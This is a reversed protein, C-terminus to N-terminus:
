RYWLQVQHSFPSFLTRLFHSPPAFPTRLPHLSSAVQHSPSTFSTRLLNCVKKQVKMIGAVFPTQYLHSHTSFPTRLLHLPPSFIKHVKIHVKLPILVFPTCLLNSHPRLPYFHISTRLDSLQFNGLNANTFLIVVRVVICNFEM